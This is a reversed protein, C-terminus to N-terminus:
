ISSEVKISYLLVVLQEALASHRAQRPISRWRKVDTTRLRKRSGAPRPVFLFCELSRIACCTRRMSDFLHSNSCICSDSTSTSGFRVSTNPWTRKKNPLKLPFTVELSNNVYLAPSPRPQLAIGTNAPQSRVVLIAKDSPEQVASKAYM